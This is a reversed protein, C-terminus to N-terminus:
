CLGVPLAESSGGVMVPGPQPSSARHKPGLGTSIPRNTVCPDTGVLGDVAARGTVAPISRGPLPGRRELGIAKADPV